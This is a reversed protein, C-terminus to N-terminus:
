LNKYMLNAEDKTVHDKLILVEVKTTNSGFSLTIQDGVQVESGAKAVRDNILIRGKDCAEKAVTRRKIIRSVKLFKDIRM